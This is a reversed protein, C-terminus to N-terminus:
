VCASLFLDEACEGLPELALVPDSQFWSSPVGDPEEVQTAPVWTRLGYNVKGAGNALLQDSVSYRPSSGPVKIHATLTGFPPKILQTM